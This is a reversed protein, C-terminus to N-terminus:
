SPVLTIDSHILSKVDPQVVVLRRVAGCDALIALVLRLYPPFLSLDQSVGRASRIFKFFPCDVTAAESDPNLKWVM